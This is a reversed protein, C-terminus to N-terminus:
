QIQNILQIHNKCLYFIILENFNNKILIKYKGKEYCNEFFCIKKNSKLYQISRIKGQIKNKPIERIYEKKIKVLLREM